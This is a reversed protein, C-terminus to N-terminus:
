QLRGPPVGPKGRCGVTFVSCREDDVLVKLHKKFFLYFESNKKDSELEVKNEVIDGM